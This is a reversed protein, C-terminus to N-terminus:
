QRSAPDKDHAVQNRINTGFLFVTVLAFGGIVIQGLVLMKVGESFEDAPGFLIRWTVALSFLILVACIAGLLWLWRGGTAGALTLNRDMAADREKADATNAQLMLGLLQAMNAHVEERYKAAAQPDAELVQVAGELTPQGTVTKAMAAVMEATKVNRQNAEGGSGFVRILEPALQILNPLLAAVIAPMPMAPEPPTWDGAEGAPITYTPPTESPPLPEPAPQPAQLDDVVPEAPADLESPPTWGALALRAVETRKLRDLEGNAAYRSDANGRNILRAIGVLNGADALRNCGHHAWWEAATWAAWKPEEVAEPFDEFDPAGVDQMRAATARYNNRGTLQILGRGRYRPGDGPRVNGLDQRGEYARGDALERAYRLSGSEHALEGLFSWLRQATNIGYHACAASLHGAYLEAAAPTSGTARRLLDPPLM